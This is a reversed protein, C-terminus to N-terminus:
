KGVLPLLAETLAQAVEQHGAYNWHTWHYSQGTRAALEYFRRQLGLFAVQRSAAWRSAWDELCFPDITPDLRKLRAADQPTNGEYDVDVLLLKAGAERCMRDAEELLASLVHLNRAFRPDPRSTCLTLYPPLAAGAHYRQGYRALRLSQVREYVLNALASHRRLFLGVRKAAFSATDAFSLDLALSGDPRTGAFPALVTPATDATLAELDNLPFFFLAVVDPHTALVYDRLVLLYQAPSYGSVGFNAVEVPRGLAQALKKEALAGFARDQEVATSEVYSDGVLAVRVTGAPKDASRDPGRWGSRNTAVVVPHPNEGVEVFKANPARRYGLVNDPVIASTAGDGLRWRCLGELLGTGLVLAGLVLLLSSRWQKGSVFAGKAKRQARASREQWPAACPAFM